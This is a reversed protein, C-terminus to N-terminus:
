NSRGAFLACGFVARVASVVDGAAAPQIAARMARLNTNDGEIGRGGTIGGSFRLRGDVGYVLAWGSTIAGFRKTESGGADIVLSAGPIGRAREILRSRRWFADAETPVAFVLIVAMPESKERALAELQTLTAESCSCLPHLFVVATARAAEQVLASERPWQRPADGPAGPTSEYAVMARIGAGILGVWVLAILSLARM